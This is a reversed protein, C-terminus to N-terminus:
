AQAPRLRDGSRRDKRSAEGTAGDCRFAEAAAFVAGTLFLEATDLAFM